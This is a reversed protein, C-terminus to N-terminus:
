PNAVLDPAREGPWLPLGDTPVGYIELRGLDYRAVSPFYFLSATL